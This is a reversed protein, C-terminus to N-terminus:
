SEDRKNTDNNSFLIDVMKSGTKAPESDLIVPITQTFERLSGTTRNSSKDRRASAEEAVKADKGDESKVKSEKNKARDLKKVRVLKNQERVSLGIQVRVM